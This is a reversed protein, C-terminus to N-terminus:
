QSGSLFEPAIKPLRSEIDRQKEQAERYDKCFKDLSDQVCEGVGEPMNITRVFRSSTTTWVIGDVKIIDNQRLVAAIDKLDVRCRVLAVRPDSMRWLPSLNVRLTHPSNETVEVNQSRLANDVKKKLEDTT